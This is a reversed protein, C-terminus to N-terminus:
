GEVPEVPSPCRMACSVPCASVLARGARTGMSVTSVHGQASEPSEKRLTLSKAYTLPSFFSFRMKASCPSISKVCKPMEPGSTNVSELRSGSSRERTRRAMSKFGASSSPVSSARM